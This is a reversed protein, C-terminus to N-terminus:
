RSWSTWGLRGPLPSVFRDPVTDIVFHLKDGAALDSAPMINDIVLQEAPTTHSVAGNSWRGSSIDYFCWAGNSSDRYYLWVEVIRGVYVSPDFSADLMGDSDETISLSASYGQADYEGWSEAAPMMGLKAATTWAAWNHQYFAGQFVVPAFFGDAPPQNRGTVYRSDMPRPDIYEVPHIEVGDFSVSGSARRLQSVPQPLNGVPQISCNRWAGDIIDYGTELGLHPRNRDEFDAGWSNAEGSNEALGKANPHGMDCFLSGRVELMASGALHHSYFSNRIYGTAENDAAEYVGNSPSGEMLIAAGGFHMALINYLRGGSSDRFHLCANGKDGTERGLGVFTANRITPCSTFMEDSGGWGSMECAKKSYRGASYLPGQVGFWFQGKGRYSMKWAFSNGGCCWSQLYRTNVAGGKFEFGNGACQFAEVNEIVTNSGVGALTLGAVDSEGDFALGGYRVSLHHIEGSNDGDDGGGYLLGEGEYGSLETELSPNPATIGPDGSNVGIYANGLLILGGWKRSIGNNPTSYPASGPEPDPGVYHDDTMDTMVIPSEPLGMAMIRAGRSIVLSGREEFRILTGAEITLTAGDDVFLPENVYYTNTASWITDTDIPSAVYDYTNSPEPDEVIAGPEGPDTEVDEFHATLDLPGTMTLTISPSTSYIAGSWNKFVTGQSPSANLTITRGSAIWGDGRNLTGDGSTEVDLRYEKSWLWTINSDRSIQFLAYTTSGSAPVDGSGSWGYCVHRTNGSQVTPNEMEVQIREHELYYNPGTGPAPNGYASVVTLTVPEPMSNDPDEWNPPNYPGVSPLIEPNDTPDASEEPSGGAMEDEPDADENDEEPDTSDAQGTEEKESLGDEAEAGSDAKAALNGSDEEASEEETRQRSRAVADSGSPDEGRAERAAVVAAYGKLKPRRREVAFEETPDENEESNIMEMMRRKEETMRYPDWAEDAKAKKEAVPTETPHSPQEVEARTQDSEVPHTAPSRAKGFIRDFSFLAQPSGPSFGSDSDLTGDQEPGFLQMGGVVAYYVATSVLTLKWNMFPIKM